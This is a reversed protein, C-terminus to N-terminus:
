DEARLMIVFEYPEATMARFRQVIMFGARAFLAQSRVNVTAITARFCEPAFTQRGWDLIAALFQHSLGRGILEPNLGLGVDLANHTYDGGWVQADEGFCCFGVLYGGVDRAVYYNYTPTLLVRIDDEMENPDPRYLTGIDPYDWNLVERAEPETIPTFVLSKM